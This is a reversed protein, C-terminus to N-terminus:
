NNKNKLDGKLSFVALFMIQGSYFRKVTKGVATDTAILDDDSALRLPHKDCSLGGSDDRACLFMCM